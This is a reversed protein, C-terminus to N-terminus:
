ILLTEPPQCSILHCRKANCGQINQQRCTRPAASHAHCKTKALPFAMCAILISLQTAHKRSGTWYRAERVFPESQVRVTVAKM